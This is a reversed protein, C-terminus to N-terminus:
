IVRGILLPNTLNAPTGLKGFLAGLFYRQRQVRTYDSLGEGHRQRVFALAQKGQVGRNWGQKLDIGSYGNPHSADGETSANQAHCLNLDVGGVAVSLRYFGLMSIKMFHDISLDTLRTIVEALAGPGGGADGGGVSYAANIKGTGQGRPLNILSDRPFSMLAASRGDAPLHLVMITDTNDGPSYDTGIAALEAATAGQRSDDGVLLINQETGAPAAAAGAAPTSRHFPVVTVAASLSNLTAWAFGSALLVTLSLGAAITRAGITLLRGFRAPRHPEARKAPNSLWPM